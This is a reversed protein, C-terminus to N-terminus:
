RSVVFRQVVANKLGQIRVLYLGAPLGAINIPAAGPKEVRMAPRGLGDYIELATAAEGGTLRVQDTAPNPVLQWDSSQRLVTIGTTAPFSVCGCSAEYGANVRRVAPITGTNFTGSEGIVPWALGESCEPRTGSPLYLSKDPITGATGQVLNLQYNNYQFHGKGSLFYLGTLPSTVENGIFQQSDTPTTFNMFIGYGTARNRFFTNLPGNRGHSDDIVINNIVNGEALNMFPFDGHFVIEGASSDPLGAETWYPKTSYNYSLVNGNAGSQLLMSHRLHRFYNGSVLCENSGMQLLVGYGQGGGGYGFADHFFSNRIEVNSSRNLEVHAFNAKDSELGSLWCNVARDYAINSSQGSTADLRELSLCEIGINNRPQIRRIRPRLSLAYNFRARSKLILQKGQVARIQATQSLSGYAWASVMFAADDVSLTIWDGTHFSEPNDVTIVSDGRRFAAALLSTDATATGNLNILNSLQGELDFRLRTSDHGAGRLILSDREINVARDFYYTGAPFVITGPKGNLSAIAKRLAENSSEVGSVDAGYDQMSRTEAFEPRTGSYGAASWYGKVPNYGSQASTRLAILALLFSLYFKM